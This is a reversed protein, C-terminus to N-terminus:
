AGGGKGRKSDVDSGTAGDGAFVTLCQNSQHLQSVSNMDLIIM